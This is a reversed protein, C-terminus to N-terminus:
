IQFFIGNKSLIRTIQSINNFVIALLSAIYTNKYPQNLGADKLILKPVINRLFLM